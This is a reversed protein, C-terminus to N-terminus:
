CSAAFRPAFPRCSITRRSEGEARLRLRRGRPQQAAARQRRPRDRLRDPGRASLSPDSRGRRHREHAPMAIDSVIVDPALREAEHVLAEGDNVTGVIDFEPELLTRWLQMTQAHDDALLVRRRTMAGGKEAHRSLMPVITRLPFRSEGHPSPSSVPVRRFNDALVCGAGKRDPVDYDEAKKWLCEAEIRRTIALPILNAAAISRSIHKARSVRAWCCPAECFGAWLFRGCLLRGRLLRGLLLGSRRLRSRRRSM